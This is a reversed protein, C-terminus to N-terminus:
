FKLSINLNFQFKFEVKLFMELRMKVSIFMQHIISNKTSTVLDKTILELLFDPAFILLALFRLRSM